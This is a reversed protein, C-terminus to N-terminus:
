AQTILDERLSTAEVVVTAFVSPTTLFSENNTNVLPLRSMDPPTYPQQPVLTPPLNYPVHVPPQIIHAAYHYGAAQTTVESKHNKDVLRFHAYLNLLIRDSAAKARWDRYAVTFMGISEMIVIVTRVTSHESIPGGKM